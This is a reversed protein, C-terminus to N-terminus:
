EIKEVREIFWKVKPSKPEIETEWMLRIIDKTNISKNILGKKVMSLLMLKFRKDKDDKFGGSRFFQARKISNKAITHIFDFISKTIKEWHSFLKVIDEIYKKAKKRKEDAVSLGLMSIIDDLSDDFYKNVILKTKNVTKVDGFLLDISGRLNLYEDTKLKLMQGDDFTIVWGEMGSMSKAFGLLQEESFKSYDTVLDVPMNRNKFKNDYNNKIQRYSLLQHTVADRIGHLFLKPKDGYSYAYINDPDYFEFIYEDSLGWKSRLAEKIDPNTNLFSTIRAVMQTDPNTNGTTSVLIHQNYEKLTVLTGDIKESINIIKKNPDWKSLNRISEDLNSYIDSQLQGLNFFKDYPHVVINGYKDLVLGRAIRYLYNNWDVAAHAYKITYLENYPDYNIILDKNKHQIRQYEQLLNM